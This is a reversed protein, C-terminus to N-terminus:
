GDVDLVVLTPASEEIRSSICFNQTTVFSLWLSAVNGRVQYATLVATPLAIGHPRRIFILILIGPLHCTRCVCEIFYLLSLFCLFFRFVGEFLVTIDVTRNEIRASELSLWAPGQKATQAHTPNASNSFRFGDRGDAM